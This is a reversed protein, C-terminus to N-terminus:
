DSHMDEINGSDPRSVPAVRVFCAVPQNNRCMRLQLLLLTDLDGGWGSTRVMSLAFLRGSDFPTVFIYA